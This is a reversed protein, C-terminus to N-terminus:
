RPQYFLKGVCNILCFFKDEASNRYKKEPSLRIEKNETKFSIKSSILVDGEKNIYPIIYAGVSKREM